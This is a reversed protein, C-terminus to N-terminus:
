ITIYMAEMALMGTLRYSLVLRSPAPRIVCNKWIVRGSIQVLMRVVNVKKIMLVILIANRNTFAM